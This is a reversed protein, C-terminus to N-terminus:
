DDIRQKPEYIKELAKQALVTDSLHVLWSEPTLGQGKRFDASWVGHHWRVAQEVGLVEGLLQAAAVALVSGGQGGDGEGFGRM